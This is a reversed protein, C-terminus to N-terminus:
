ADKLKKELEEIVIKLRRAESVLLSPSVTEKELTEQTRECFSRLSREFSRFAELKAGILAIMELEVAEDAAVLLQALKAVAPGVHEIVQASEGVFRYYSQKYLRNRKETNSFSFFDEREFGGLYDELISGLESIHVCLETCINKQTDNIENASM